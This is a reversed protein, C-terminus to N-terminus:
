RITSCDFDTVIEEFIPRKREVPEGEKTGIYICGAIKDTKPNGGLILLINENYSYWETLWQAAYNYSQAALLLNQCVAGASLEMEWSPIKVNQLPTSIVIIIVSARLFRNKESDITNQSPNDNNRLFEPLLVKEGFIKRSDGKIIQIKWPNLAGHDPVRLGCEVINELHNDTVQGTKIKKATVSRRSRLFKVVENM